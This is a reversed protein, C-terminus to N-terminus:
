AHCTACLKLGLVQSHPLPLCIETLKLDAQSVCLTGPFDTSFGQLTSLAQSLTRSATQQGKCLMCVHVRIYGLMYKYLCMCASPNVCVYVSGFDEREEQAGQVYM